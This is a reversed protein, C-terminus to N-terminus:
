EYRQCFELLMGRDPTRAREVYCSAVTQGLIMSQHPTLGWLFGACVGANFHDGAGTVTLPHETYIGEFCSTKEKTFCFSRRGTHLFLCEAGLRSRLGEGMDETRSAEIGLFEALRCAENHNLGILTRIRTGAKRISEVMRQFQEGTLASPDALDFFFRKRERCEPLLGDLIDRQLGELIGGMDEMGSWNVAGILSSEEAQRTLFSMGARDKINEWTLGKGSLNGLMIKGDKFELAVTRSSQGVSIRRCRPNMREFPRSSTDTDMQGICAVPFGLAAMADAMIPANGGFRVDQPVIELDASKGAAEVIRQGFEGIGAYWEPRNQAGHRKVVRYIEDVYGDFGIMSKKDCLGDELAEVVAQIDKQYKQM